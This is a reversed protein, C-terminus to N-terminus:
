RSYLSAVTNVTGKSVTLRSDTKVPLMLQSVRTEGGTLLKLRAVCRERRAGRSHCGARSRALGRRESRSAAMDSRRERESDREVAGTPVLSAAKAEIPLGASFGASVCMWDFHFGKAVEAVM